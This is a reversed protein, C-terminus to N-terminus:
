INPFCGNSLPILARLSPQGLRYVQIQRDQLYSRRLISQVGACSHSDVAKQQESDKNRKESCRTRDVFASRGAKTQHPAFIDPFPLLYLAIKARTDNLTPYLYCCLTYKVGKKKWLLFNLQTPVIPETPWSLM